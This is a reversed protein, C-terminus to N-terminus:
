QVRGIWINNAEDSEKVADGWDLIVILYPYDKVSGFSQTAGWRMSLTQNPQLKGLPSLGIISGGAAKDENPDYKVDKSLFCQISVNDHEASTAGDLNAAEVGINKIILDFYISTSSVSFNGVKFFTLDANTKTFNQNVPYAVYLEDNIVRQALQDYTIWFIGNDGFGSGWSNLVKFAGKTDDYGILTVAHNGLKSKLKMSVVFPAELETILEDVEIGALIPLRQSLLAKINQIDNKNVREFRAIRNDLANRFAYQSPQRDCVDSEYSMANLDCIGKDALLGLNALFTTSSCSNKQKQIQSYLFDPSMLRDPSKYWWSEYVSNSKTLYNFYSAVSACVCSVCSNKPGQEYSPPMNLAVSAPLTMTKNSGIAQFIQPTLPISAVQSGSSLELGFEYDNQKPGVDESKKCGILALIAFFLLITRQM